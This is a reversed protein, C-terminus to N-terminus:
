AQKKGIQSKREAILSKRAEEDPTLKPPVNIPEDTEPLADEISMVLKM